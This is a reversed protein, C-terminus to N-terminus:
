FVSRFLWPPCTDLTELTEEVDVLLGRLEDSVELCTCFGKRLKGSATPFNWSKECPQLCGLYSRATQSTCSM